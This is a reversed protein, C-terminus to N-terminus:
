PRSSTVPSYERLRWANPTLNSPRLPVPLRDTSSIPTVMEAVEVPM